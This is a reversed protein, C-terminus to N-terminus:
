WRECDPKIKWNDCYECREFMQAKSETSLQEGGAFYDKDNHEPDPDGFVYWHFIHLFEHALAVDGVCDNYVLQMTDNGMTLGRCMRIQGDDLKGCVIPKEKLAIRITDGDENLRKKIKKIHKPNYINVITLEIQRDMQYYYKDTLEVGSSNYYEMGFRNVYDPDPGCSVLFLFLIFIKVSIGM